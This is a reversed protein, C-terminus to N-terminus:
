RRQRHTAGPLALAYGNSVSGDSTAMWLVYAGKNAAADYFRAISLNPKGSPATRAYRMAGLRARLTALFYWATKPQEDGKKTLVGSTSFQVANNPCATTPGTCNDRSVFLFARDIGSGMLALFSRVFWQGQVAQADASGIAPARLRSGAIPTTALNRSGCRRARASASRPVRRRRGPGDRHRVGRACARPTPEHDRVSRARLLLRPRQHRRRSLQRRPARHGLSTDRGPLHHRQDAMRRAGAGALGALVLKADPDASKIGFTGGLRGQNGDYDASSMAAGGGALLCLSGDANVWHRGARQRRRLLATRRARHARGSRVRAEPERHSRGEAGYRAAYQYLFSAHAVYSAARTVDAGAAVPPM